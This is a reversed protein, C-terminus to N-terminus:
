NDFVLTVQAMSKPGTTSTGSFIVDGMAKGRLMSPRQEGLVWRIGEVINSKGCGNPGVVVTIGEGMTCVTKDAFSKFGHLEIRTLFM